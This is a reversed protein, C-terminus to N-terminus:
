KKIGSLFKVITNGAIGSVFAVTMDTANEAIESFDVSWVQKVLYDIGIESVVFLVVIGSLLHALVNFANFQWFQRVSYMQNESEELLDSLHNYRNLFVALVTLVTIIIQLTTIEM